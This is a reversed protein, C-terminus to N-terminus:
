GSRLGTTTRSAASPDGQAHPHMHRLCGSGKFLSYSPDGSLCGVPVCKGPFNYPIPEPPHETEM